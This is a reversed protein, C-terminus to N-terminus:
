RIEWNVIGRLAPDIGDEITKELCASDVSRSCRFVFTLRRKGPNKRESLVHCDLRQLLKRYAHEADRFIDDGLATIEMRYCIRSDMAYFLLFGFVTSLVAVHPLQLGCALGILTVLIVRGTRNASQLVTRFRILGGIGFLVFGVVMGYNVVMIGVIAGVVAYITYVPLTEIDEPSDSTQGHRPHLALIAGLVAAMSLTALARSWFQWDTFGSWGDAELSPQQLLGEIAQDPWASASALLLAVGLV